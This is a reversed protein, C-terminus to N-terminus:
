SRRELRLVGGDRRADVDGPLAVPGQGRWQSALAEVSSIHDFSVAPLGANALFRKIVRTRIARPYLMLQTLDVEHQSAVKLLVEEAWGDLADADDRLLAASRVLASEIGPGLDKEVDSLLQRTRVRSFRPDDNHPDDWFEIGEAAVEQRVQERTLHLLPRRYRGNIRAMGSLSRAGSGRTLGLLVTEAQDSSTHGLYIASANHRQAALDLAQYRATRAAAELGGQDDVQVSIAEAPQAGREKLREVLAHAREQSGPQLGHDISIVGVRIAFAASEELLAVALGMSDAGGSCAVLVLDGPALQDLDARVAARISKM